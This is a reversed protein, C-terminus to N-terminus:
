SGIGRVKAPHAVRVKRVLAELSNYLTGPRVVQGGEDVVTVYSSRKHYHVGGYQM